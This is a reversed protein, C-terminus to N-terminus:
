GTAGSTVSRMSARSRYAEGADVGTRGAGRCAGGCGGAPLTPGHGELEVREADGPQDEHEGGGDREDRVPQPLREDDPEDDDTHDDARGAEVPHMLGLREVQEGLDADRDQEKEDPELEVDVEDARDARHREGGADPLDDDGGGGTEADGQQEAEVEDGGRNDADGDRERRRDDHDLQEAILALEVLQVPADGETQEDHLVDDHDDDHDHEGAQAGAGGLAGPEIDAGLRQADQEAAAAQEDADGDRHAPHQRPQEVADRRAGLQEDDPADGPRDADGGEGVHEPERDLDPGEQGAEGEGGRAVALLHM